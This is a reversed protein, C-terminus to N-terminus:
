LIVKIIILGMLSMFSLSLGASGSTEEECILKNNLKETKMETALLIGVRSMANTTRMLFDMNADSYLLSDDDCSSLYCSTMPQRLNKTDTVLVAKLGVDTANAGNAPIYEWMTAHPGTLFASFTGLIGNVGGPLISAVGELYTLPSGLLQLHLPVFKFPDAAIGGTQAKQVVIWEANIKNLLALENTRSIATLFDGRDGGSKVSTYVDHFILGFEDPLYQAEEMKNHNMISDLFIAGNYTDKNSIGYKDLVEALLYDNMFAISSANTGVLAAMIVSNTFTCVTKKNKTKAQVIAKAIELLAAMGSGNADVGPNDDNATGYTAVIMTVKDTSKGWNTGQIELMVSSGVERLVTSSDQLDAFITTIYQKAADLAGPSFRPVKFAQTFHSKLADKSFTVQGHTAMCMLATILSLYLLNREM